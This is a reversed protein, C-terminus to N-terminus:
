MTSTFSTNFLKQTTHSNSLLLKSSTYFCRDVCSREYKMPRGARQRIVSERFPSAINTASCGELDGHEMAAMQAAMQKCTYNLSTKHALVCM